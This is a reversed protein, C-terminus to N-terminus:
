PLMNELLSKESDFQQNLENISQNFTIYSGSPNNVQELLASNISYLKKSESYIEKFKNPYKDAAESIIKLDSSVTRMTLQAESAKDENIKKASDVLKFMTGYGIGLHWFDSYQDLIDKSNDHIYLSKHYFDNAVNNYKKIEKAIAETKAKQKAQQISNYKQYSFGAGIVVVVICSLVILLKKM